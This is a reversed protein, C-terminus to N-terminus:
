SPRNWAASASSGTTSRAARLEIDVLQRRHLGQGQEGLELALRRILHRAPGSSRESSDSAATASRARRGGLGVGDDDRDRVGREFRSGRSRREVLRRLLDCWSSKLESSCSRRRDARRARAPRTARSWGSGCCRRRALNRAPTSNGRRGRSSRPRRRRCTGCSGRDSTRRAAALAGIALECRDVGSSRYVTANWSFSATPENGILRTIPM